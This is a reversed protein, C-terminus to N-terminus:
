LREMYFLDNVLGTGGDPGDEVTIAKWSHGVWGRRAWGRVEGPFRIGSALSKELAIQEEPSVGFASAFSARAETSVGVAV